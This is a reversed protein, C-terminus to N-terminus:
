HLDSSSHIQIQNFFCLKQPFFPRDILKSPSKLQQFPKVFTTCFVFLNYYICLLLSSFICQILFYFFRAFRPKINIKSNLRLLIKKSSNLILLFKKNQTITLTIAKRKTGDILVKLPQSYKAANMMVQRIADVIPTPKEM